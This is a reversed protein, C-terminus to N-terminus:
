DIRATPIFRRLYTALKINCAYVYCGRIGRTMMVRYSNIIFRRVTEPDTNKKVNIDCFKDLDVVIMNLKEDYDIEKGFIVGVYNLDYGQVTHICGIENVSNESLIWSDSEMNWIYKHPGIDIDYLGQRRVDELKMNKTRWKWSYGAVNRCLGFVSDLHRIMGVMNGVDDFIQFDYNEVTEAQDQTCELINRVYQSYEGGGLCRLQTKLLYDTRNMGVTENFQKATIDSGKVTQEPDYLLVNYRSCKMVWDLQNAKEPDLGLRRCTDNFAKQNQINKKTSLRHSEDVILIDFPGNDVYDKVVDSPGMVMKGKLGNKTKVFVTRLTGRLSTMPVVLGIRLNRRHSLFTNLEHMTEDEDSYGITDRAPDVSIEMADVLTSMLIVALMTKGTGASGQIVATWKREQSSMRVFERVIELCINWQEATLSTYPSYKFLDSNLITRYDHDTLNRERLLRWIEPLTKRYIERQYYDHSISQGANLNQLRFRGDASFLRILSQEIDLTASKNFTEDLIIDIKKLKKRETNQLHQHFRNIVSCTEGIYAEENGSIIYVVPWDGEHDTSALARGEESFEYEDVRM